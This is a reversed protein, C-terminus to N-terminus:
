EGTAPTAASGAAPAREGDVAERHATLVSSVYRSLSPKAGPPSTERARRKLWAKLKADVIVDLKVGYAM